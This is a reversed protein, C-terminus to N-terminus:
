VIGFYDKVKEIEDPIKFYPGRSQTKGNDYSFDVHFKDGDFYRDEIMEMLLKARKRITPRMGNIAFSRNHNRIHLWGYNMPMDYVNMDSYEENPFFKSFNKAIYDYHTTSGTPIDIVKGRDNIWLTHGAKSIISRAIKSAIKFEDM